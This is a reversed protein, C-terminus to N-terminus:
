DGRKWVGVFKLGINNAWMNMKHRDQFVYASQGKAAYLINSMMTIMKCFGWKIGELLLLM